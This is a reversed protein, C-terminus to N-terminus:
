SRPLSEPLAPAFVQLNQNEAADKLRHDYAVMGALNAGLSVAAALHLADLTRLASPTLERALRVTREDVPIQHVGELVQDARLLYFTEESVRRVARRVEVVAVTSTVREPYGTLFDILPQTEPEDLVLKVLASSDLYLLDGAM